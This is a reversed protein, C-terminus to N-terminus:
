STWVTADKVRLKYRTQFIRVGFLLPTYAIVLCYLAYSPTHVSLYALPLLWGMNIFFIFLSMKAHSQWQQALLQYTHHNHAETIAQRALLRQLLTVSADVIFVGGLILWSSYNMWKLSITLLALFLLIFALFLSGVDGMFIRAPSWNHWLFGLIAAAFCVMWLWITANTPANLSLQAIIFAAGALMFLAQSAALGDIGDMFNFLNLWWTGALVIVVFSLGLSIGALPELGNAPLTYLTVVLASSIMFQMLLRSTASLQFIDDLLGMVAVALSLSMAIWYQPPSVNDRWFLWATFCLTSVIIGLGGGHPILKTHSSRHNPQQILRLVPAYIIIMKTAFWAILVSVMFLISFEILM